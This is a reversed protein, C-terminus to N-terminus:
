EVLVLADLKLLGAISEDRNEVIGRARKTTRHTELALDVLPTEASWGTEAHSDGEM